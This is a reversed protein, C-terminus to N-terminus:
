PWPSPSTSRAASRSARASPSSTAPRAWPSCWPSCPSSRCRSRGAAGPSRCAPSSASSSWRRAKCRPIGDTLAILLASAVASCWCLPLIRIKPRFRPPRTASRSASRARPPPWPPKLVTSRASASASWCCAWRSPTATSFTSASCINSCLPPHRMLGGQRGAKTAAPPYASRPPPLLGPGIAAALAEKEGLGASAGTGGPNHGM